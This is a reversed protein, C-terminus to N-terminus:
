RQPGKRQPRSGQSCAGTGSKGDWLSCRYASAQSVSLCVSVCVCVCVCVSSIWMLIHVYFFVELDTEALIHAPIYLKHNPSM